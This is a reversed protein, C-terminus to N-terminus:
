KETEEVSKYRQIVNRITKFSSAAQLTPFFPPFFILEFSLFPFWMAASGSLVVSVLVKECGAAHRAQVGLLGHRRRRFLGFPREGDSDSQLTTLFLRLTLWLRTKKKLPHSPRRVVYREGGGGGVDAGREV